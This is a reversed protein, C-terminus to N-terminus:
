LDGKVQYVLLPVDSRLIMKGTLSPNLLGTLFGRERTAMVLLDVTNEALYDNIGGTVTSSEVQDVALPEAGYVAQLPAFLDADDNINPQNESKVQLLRLSAGFTQALDVVQEFIDAEDFELPTSFVIRQLSVDPAAEAQDSQHSAPIILVPQHASAAVDAATSGVLRDFFNGIHSRGVIILDVRYEKAADLIAEDIGGRRLATRCAIGEAQLQRGLVILQDELVPEATLPMAEGMTMGMGLGAGGIAPISPSPMVMAAVHVLILEANYRRAFLKAWVMVSQSVPIFDVALLITKM